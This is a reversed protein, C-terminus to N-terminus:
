FGNFRREQSIPMWWCDRKKKLFIRLGKKLWPMVFIRLVVVNGFKPIQQGSMKDACSGLRYTQKEEVAAHLKQGHLRHGFAPDIGNGQKGTENYLTGQSDAGGKNHQGVIV